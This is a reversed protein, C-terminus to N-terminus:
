ADHPARDFVQREQMRGPVLVDRAAPSVVAASSCRAGAPPGDAGTGSRCGHFAATVRQSSRDMGPLPSAAPPSLRLAVAAKWTGAVTETRGRSVGAASLWRCHPRAVRRRARKERALLLAVRSLAQEVGALASERTPRGIFTLPRPPTKARNRADAGVDRRKALADLRDVPGGLVQEREFTVARACQVVQACADQLARESVTQM